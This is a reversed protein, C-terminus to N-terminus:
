FDYGLTVYFKADTRQNAELGWAVDFKMYYSLVMTRAGFGYGILFPNSFNTVSGSFAGQRPIEITNVANKRNFPSTGTWAAGMDTFGALQLNRFFSSAVTGKYFFRLLPLRLEANLLLHSNGNMANYNFGRMSTVFRSFLLPTMDRAIGQEPEVTLVDTSGRQETASGIWNNMGGLIYSKPAAGFYHGFSVRTALVLSKYIKQYHRAEMEVNAFHESADQSHRYVELGARFKTGNLMNMRKGAKYERAAHGSLYGRIVMEVKFPTCLHGVAVNPDPTAILWNPVLDETDHMMQTAIQNLIQGKFPIGKPMVVDFASLRDSAVMVLLDNELTYVDRVKGKYVSKQNPFEFDTAIITQSM